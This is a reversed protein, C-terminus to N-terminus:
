AGKDTGPPHHGHRRVVVRTGAMRDHLGQRTASLPIAAVAVLSLLAAVPIGSPAIGAVAGTLWWPWSRLAAAAFSLREGGRHVVRLGTLLKGPTAAAPSGEFVVRYFMALGGTLVLTAPALMAAEPARGLAPLTAAALISADILAAAARRWLLSDQQDNGPIDM